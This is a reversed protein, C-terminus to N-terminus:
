AARKARAAEILAADAKKWADPDDAPQWAAGETVKITPQKSTGIFFHKGGNIRNTKKSVQYDVGAASKVWYFCPTERLVEMVEGNPVIDKGNVVEIQKGM